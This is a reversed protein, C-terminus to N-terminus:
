CPLYSYATFRKNSSDSIAASDYNYYWYDYQTYQIRGESDLIFASGANAGIDGGITGKMDWIRSQLKPVSPHGTEGNLETHEIMQGYRRLRDDQTYDFNGHGRGGSGNDGWAVAKGWEDVAMIMRNGDRHARGIHRVDQADLMMLKPHYTTTNWLQERDNADQHSRNYLQAYDDNYGWSYLAGTNKEKVIIQYYRHGVIWFDDANNWIESAGNFTRPVVQFDRRLNAMVQRQLPIFRCNNTWNRQPSQLSYENTYGTCHITGDHTLVFCTNYADKGKHIIKKIGGYREWDYRVRVPRQTHEFSGIGLGGNGNYGWAWLQEDEDVAYVSEYNNGSGYMDIIRKSDFFKRDILYPRQRNDRWGDGVQGYNNHGWSFLRGEDTLAYWCGGSRNNTGSATTDMKIIFEDRLIHDDDWIVEENRGPRAVHDGRTSTHNEGRQGHSNYGTYYMEGNDFLWATGDWCNKMQVCKPMEGTISRRRNSYWDWFNLGPTTRTWHMGYGNGTWNYSEGLGMLNPSFSYTRGWQAPVGNDDIASCNQYTGGMRMDDDGSFGMNRTWGLPNRQGFTCFRKREERRSNSLIPRWYPNRGGNLYCPNDNQPRNDSECLWMQGQFECIDGRQYEKKVGWRGRYSNSEQIPKWYKFGDRFAHRPSYENGYVDKEHLVDTTCVYTQNGNKVIDGKKYIQTDSWRGAYTHRISRFDNLNM